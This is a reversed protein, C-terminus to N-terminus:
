LAARSTNYATSFAVDVSMGSGVINQIIKGIETRATSSGVFVASTMYYDKLTSTIQPIDYSLVGNGANSIWTKYQETEYSSVRIPDYSNELALATNNEVDALEKYFLWAGKHIYPDDNDFFCISPGQQIYKPTDGYYPVAALGVRFNSSVQYSSGGTSGISMALRGDNFYTNTYKSGGLTGKTIMLHTNILNDILDQTFAKAKDNDFLIKENGTASTYEIGRQAFQSIMLNADSDYGIPYFENSVGETALDQKMKTAVSIMEDWTKPIDYSYGNNADVYTKLAQLSEVTASSGGKDVASKLTAYQTDNAFKHNNAYNSGYFYNMNYYMVETSKYMPMSWLGEFQYNKGEDLYSSVFDALEEDTYGYNIDKVFQDLRLIQSEDREKTMYEAFSDPYGMCLAPIEGSAIKTKTNDHLSDYDGAIKTLKVKYKGAYKTNFSDVIKGLNGEKAQGLCEWFDITVESTPDDTPLYAQRVIESSTEDEDEDGSDEGCSVLGLSAICVLSLLGLKKLNKKM